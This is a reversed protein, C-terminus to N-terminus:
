LRAKRKRGERENMSFRVGPSRTGAEFSCEQARARRFPPFASPPPPPSFSTGAHEVERIGRGGGIPGSCTRAPAPPPAHARAPLADVPLSLFSLSLSVPLNLVKRGSTQGSCTDNFTPLGASPIPLAFGAETSRFSHLFFCILLIFLGPLHNRHSPFRSFSSGSLPCARPHPPLPPTPLLLPSARATLFWAPPTQAHAPAPERENSSPARPASTLLSRPFSPPLFPATSITLTRHLPQRGRPPLLELELHFGILRQM